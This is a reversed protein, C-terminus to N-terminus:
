SSFRLANPRAECEAIPIKYATCLNRYLIGVSALRKQLNKLTSRNAGYYSRANGRTNQREICFVGCKESLDM